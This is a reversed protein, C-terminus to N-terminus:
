IPYSTRAPFRIPDIWGTERLSLGIETLPNSRQPKRETVEEM